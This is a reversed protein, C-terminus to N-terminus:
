QSAIIAAFISSHVEFSSLCKLKWYLNELYQYAKEEYQENKSQKSLL